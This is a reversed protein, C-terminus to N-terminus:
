ATAFDNSPSERRGVALASLADDIEARRGNVLSQYRLSANPTSHGLRDMTEVLNAVRATMTGAFHRLDHLRMAPVDAARCAERFADRVVRSDVHCGGRAPAFLLAEPDADVFRALHQEVPTRMHPPIIISRTRVSKPTDVRCRQGDDGKRHVVGRRVVITDPPFGDGKSSVIDKRRLETAEGFRLGCWASILVYAQLNVQIADAIRALEDVTPVTPDYMYDNSSMSGNADRRESVKLYGSDELGHIARQITRASYGTRNALTEVSPHAGDAMRDYFTLEKLVAKQTATADLGSIRDWVRIFQTEDIGDDVAMSQTRGVNELREQKAFHPTDL